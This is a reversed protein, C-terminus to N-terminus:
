FLTFLDFLTPIEDRSLSTHYTKYKGCFDELEKRYKHQADVYAKRAAEVREAAAKREANKKDEEAKKRAQANLAAEEAKVCEDATKYSKGTVESTYLM